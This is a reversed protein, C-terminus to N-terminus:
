SSFHNVLKLITGILGARPMTSVTGVAGGPVPHSSTNGMLQLASSTSFCIGRSYCHWFQGPPPEKIEEEDKRSVFGRITSCPLSDM